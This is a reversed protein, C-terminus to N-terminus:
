AGPIGKKICKAPVGVETTYPAVDKIVVAGAGIISYEGITKYQLIKTGTGIFAGDCIKVGGSIAVLPLITCYDGIVTQHGITCTLNLLNFNGITIGTTFEVGATIINGIGLSVCEREFGALPHILNPFVLNNISKIKNVIKRKIKSNSHPIAVGLLDYEKSFDKFKGDSTIIPFGFVNTGVDEDKESVYGKFDFVNFKNHKNILSVLHAIETAIDGSGFIVLPLGNWKRM